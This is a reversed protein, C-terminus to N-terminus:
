KKGFLSFHVYKKPNNNIDELLSNLSNITNNLNLYFDENTLLKGASGKGSNLNDLLLTTEELSNKLNDITTGIEAIALSDSISDLNAFVNDLRDSNNALMESFTHLNGILIDVEKERETAINSLTTTTTELNSVTKNLKVVFDTTLLNSIAQTVSDLNEITATAAKLIPDIDEEITTIISANLTGKLTDKEAYFGPGDGYIFQVKMGAIISVPKIQAETNVPLKFSKDISFVVLLKDSTKSLFRIDQVIGVQFGNVEVPSSVLLGGVDDYVAYYNATSKFVNKGKLFSFTIIFAVLIIITTLGIKVENSIKM